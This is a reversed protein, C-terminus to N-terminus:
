NKMLRDRVSFRLGDTSSVNLLLTLHLNLVKLLAVYYREATFGFNWGQRPPPKMQRQLIIQQVFPVDFGYNLQLSCRQISPIKQSVFFTKNGLWM